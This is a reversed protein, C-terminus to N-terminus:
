ESRETPLSEIDKGVISVWRVVCVATIILGAWIFLHTLILGVLAMTIGLATLLPLISNGPLHIEERVVQGDAGNRAAM